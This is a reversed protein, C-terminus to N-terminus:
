VHFMWNAVRELVSPRSKTLRNGPAWKAMDRPRGSNSREPQEQPPMECSTAESRIVQLLKHFNAKDELEQRLRYAETSKRLTQRRSQSAPDIRFDEAADEEGFWAEKASYYNSGRRGEEKKSVDTYSSGRRGAEKKSLEADKPLQYASTRRTDEKMNKDTSTPLQYGSGRRIAEMTNASTTTPVALGSYVTTNLNDRKGDVIVNDVELQSSIRLSPLEDM